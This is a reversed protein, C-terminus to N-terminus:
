QAMQVVVARWAKEKDFEKLPSRSVQLWVPSPNNRGPPCGPAPPPHSLETLELAKRLRHFCSLFSGQFGSPVYLGQGEGRGCVLGDTGRGRLFVARAPRPACEGSSRPM